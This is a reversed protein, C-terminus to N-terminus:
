VITGGEWSTLEKLKSILTNVGNNMKKFNNKKATLKKTLTNIQDEGQEVISQTRLIGIAEDIVEITYKIKKSVQELELILNNCDAKLQKIDNSLSLIKKSESNFVAIVLAPNAANALATKTVAAKAKSYIAYMNQFRAKLISPDVKEVCSIFDDEGDDDRISKIGNWAGALGSTFSSIANNRFNLYSQAAKGVTGVTDKVIENGTNNIIQSSKIGKVILNDDSLLEKKLADAGQTITKDNIIADKLSM